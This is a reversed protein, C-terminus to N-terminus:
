SRQSTAASRQTTGSWSCGTVGASSSTCDAQRVEVHESLGLREVLAAARDVADPSRDVAVVRRTPGVHAALVPVFTGPGCGLDVVVAGAEIGAEIWAAREHRLAHEAMAAYRSLEADVLKLSYAPGTSM